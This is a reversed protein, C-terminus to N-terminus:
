KEDMYDTMLFNIYCVLLYQGRDKNKYVPFQSKSNYLLIEGQELKYISCEDEFYIISDNDKINQSLLINLILFSGNIKLDLDTINEDTKIIFTDIVNFRIECKFGYIKKIKILISEFSIIMFKFLHQIEQINIIKKKNDKNFIESSEIIFWKCIDKNFLEKLIYKKLFINNKNINNGKLIELIDKLLEKDSDNKLLQNPTELPYKISEIFVNTSKEKDIVENDLQKYLQDFIQYEKKYLIKEIFIANLISNNIYNKENNINVVYKDVCINKIANDDIYLTVNEIPKDWINIFLCKTKQENNVFGNFLNGNFCIVNNIKPYSLIMKNEDKFLKYNYTEMDINTVIFPHIDNDIFNVLSYLPFYYNHNDDRNYSNSLEKNNDFWFEIYYDEINELQIQIKIIDIIYKGITTKNKTDLIYHIGQKNEFTNSFNVNDEYLFSTFNNYTSMIM